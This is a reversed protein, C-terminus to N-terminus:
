WSSAKKKMDAYLSMKEEQSMPGNYNSVQDLPSSPSVSQSSRPKTPIKSVMAPKPAQSQYIGLDKILNYTERAVEAYDPNAALSRALGPRMSELARVNEPSVVQDFDNYATKLQAKIAATYTYQQQRAFSEEQQRRKKNEQAVFKKLTKADVFDDDSLHNIDVEPENPTPQQYQQQLRMAEQEISRAYRIAEDRERELQEAKSRLTRFNPHHQPAEQPEPASEAPEEPATEQVEQTEVQETSQEPAPAATIPQATPFAPAQGTRQAWEQEQRVSSEALEEVLSKPKPNNASM